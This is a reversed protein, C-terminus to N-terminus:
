GRRALSTGRFRNTSALSKNTTERALSRRGERVRGLEMERLYRASARRSNETAVRYADINGRLFPEGYKRVLQALKPVFEQVAKRSSVQFMTHQGFGEIEEAGAARVIEAVTVAQEEHDIPGIQVGMEYSGRGHYVNVFLRKKTLFRVTEYRIFTAEARARHFGFKRLFKFNASVAEKFGLKWRNPSPEFRVM